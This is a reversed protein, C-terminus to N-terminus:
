RVRTTMWIGAMAFCLNPLWAALWPAIKGATGFALGLQQLVLFSLCIFISGAVGVFVNRRGSAAGFPMAILVVVLCTWPTAFRGQLKTILWAKIAEPPDPHLRLYDLLQSIPIDAKAKTQLSMGKSINIESQIQEPTEKFQPMALMNTHFSPALMSGSEAGSTYGHVDYFTWVGRVRIARAAKLWLESGDRLTCLVHPNRMETTSPNYDGALWTRGERRNILGPASIIRETPENQPARRRLIREAQESTKPVCLENLGFVVASAALGVAIYPLCLRWLSVGAARIATIEYHRAHNTLTYLLALLLAVPVVYYTVLLEPTKVCYYAVVDIGHLKYDQLSRLESFLDFAICFILFGGLCYGLPGLLERLLYRDLLRM